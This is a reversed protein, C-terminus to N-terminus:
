FITRNFFFLYAANGSHPLCLLFDLQCMMNQLGYSLFKGWCGHVLVGLIHIIIVRIQLYVELGQAQILTTRPLDKELYFIHQPETRQGMTEKIEERGKM